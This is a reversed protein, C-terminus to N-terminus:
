EKSSHACWQRFRRIKVSAEGTKEYDVTFNILKSLDKLIQDRADLVDNPANKSGSRSILSNVQALQNLYLNAETNKVDIQRVQLNLTKLNNMM